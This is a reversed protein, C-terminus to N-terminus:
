FYNQFIYGKANKERIFSKVEKSWKEEIDIFSGKECNDKGVVEVLETLIDEKEQLIGSSTNTSISESSETDTCPDEDGFYEVDSEDDNSDSIPIVNIEHSEKESSPNNLMIDLPNKCSKMVTASEKQCWVRAAINSYEEDSSLCDASFSNKVNDSGKREKAKKKKPLPAISNSDKSSLSSEETQKRDKYARQDQYHVAHVRNGTDLEKSDKDSSRTYDSNTDSNDNQCEIERKREARRKASRKKKFKTKVETLSVRTAGDLAQLYSSSSPRLRHIGSQLHKHLQFIPTKGRKCPSLPCFKILGKPKKKQGKIYKDLKRKLKSM